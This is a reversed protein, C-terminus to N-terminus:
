YKRKLLGRYSSSKIVRVIKKPGHHKSNDPNYQVHKESSFNLPSDFFIDFICIKTMKPTLFVIEWKTSDSDPLKVLTM